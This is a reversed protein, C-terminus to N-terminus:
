EVLDKGTATKYADRVTQETFNLQVGSPANRLQDLRSLAKQKYIAAQDATIKPKAPAAAPTSLGEGMSEPEEPAWHGFKKRYSAVDALRKQEIIPKQIDTLGAALTGYRDHISQQYSDVMSTMTGKVQKIMGPRVADEPDGTFSEILGELSAKKDLLETKESAGLGPSQSGTELRAVEANLQGLFAKNKVVKGSEADHILDFVRAAGELRQKYTNLPQDKNVAQQAQMKQQVNARLQGPASQNMTQQLDSQSQGSVAAAQPTAVRTMTLAKLLQAEQNQVSTMDQLKAQMDSSTMHGLVENDYDSLGRFNNTRMANRLRSVSAMKDVFTDSKKMLELTAPDIRKGDFLKPFQDSMNDLLAGRLKPDDESIATKLNSHLWDHKQMEQQQQQFQLQQRQAEIQQQRQALSMGAQLGSIANAGIGSTDIAKSASEIAADMANPM